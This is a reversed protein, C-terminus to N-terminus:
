FPMTEGNSYLVGNEDHRIIYVKETNMKGNGNMKKSRKEKREKLLYKKM